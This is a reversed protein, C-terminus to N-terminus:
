LPTTDTVRFVKSGISLEQGLKVHRIAVIGGAGHDFDLGQELSLKVLVSGAPM